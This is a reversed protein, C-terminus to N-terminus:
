VTHDVSALLGTMRENIARPREEALIKAPAARRFPNDM